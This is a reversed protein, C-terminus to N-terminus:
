SRTPPNGLEFAVATDVIKNQFPIPIKVKTVIKRKEGEGIQKDKQINGVQHDRSERNLESYEKQLKEIDETKKGGALLKEFAQAPDAKLLKIIEDM